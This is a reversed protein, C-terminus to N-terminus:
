WPRRVSDEFHELIFTKVGPTRYAGLLQSLWVASSSVDARRVTLIQAYPSFGDEMLVAHRAPAFGSKAAAAYDLGVLAAEGFTATLQQTPLPRLELRHPNGLVDKLRVASGLTEPIDVLGSHYLLLLARGQAEGEAPLAIVSGPTLENLSKIRKSYFGLPLTLTTGASALEPDPNTQDLSALTEFSAASIEASKLAARLSHADQYRVVHLDLEPHRSGVHELVEAEPGGLVGVTIGSPKSASVHRSSFGVLALGSVAIVGIL